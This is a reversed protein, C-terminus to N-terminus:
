QSFNENNVIVGDHPFAERALDWAEARPKYRERAVQRAMDALERLESDAHSGTDVTVERTKM